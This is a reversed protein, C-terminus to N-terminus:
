FADKTIEMGRLIETDGKGDDDDDTLVSGAYKFKQIQKIFINGIQLQCKRNDTEKGSLCANQKREIPM